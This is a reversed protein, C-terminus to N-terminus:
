RERKDRKEKDERKITKLIEKVFDIIGPMIYPAAVKKVYNKLETAFKSSAKCGKALIVIAKWPVEKRIWFLVGTIICELVCSHGMLASGFKFPGIRYGLRKIIGDLVDPLGFIITNM